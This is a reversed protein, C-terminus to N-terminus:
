EQVPPQISAQYAAIVEPTHIAACLAQVKPDEQSYDQGPVVVHRHFSQSLVKGDEMIRTSKRVQVCGSEIVEMLDVVTEKTLM